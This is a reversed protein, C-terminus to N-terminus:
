RLRIFLPDPNLERKLAKIEKATLAADYVRWDDLRFGDDSAGYYGKGSGNGHVAGFQGARTMGQPVCATTSVENGDVVLTTGSASAVVAVFHWKGALEQINSVSVIDAGAGGGTWSVLALTSADKVVLAMGDGGAQGLNWITRVTGDIAIPRILAVVSMEGAHIASVDASLSNWWPTNGNKILAATGNKGNVNTAPWNGGLGSIEYTSDSAKAGAASAEGNFDYHLFPALAKVKATVTNDSITTTYRSGANVTITESTLETGSPATFLTLTDGVSLGSPDVNSTDLAPVFNAPLNWATATTGSASPKLTLSGIATPATSFDVSAAGKLVVNVGTLNCATSTLQLTAGDLVLTGTSSSANVNVMPVTGTGRMTLTHANLALTAQKHSSRVLGWGTSVDVMADATLSISYTQRTGSGLVVGSNKVAGSYTGGALLVGKGAITLAHQINQTNALDLCAGDEVVINAINDSAWGAFGFQKTTSTTGTKVTLGGNFQNNAAMVVNGYTEVAGEGSISASETVGDLKLVTGSALSIGTTATIKFSTDRKLSAGNELTVNEATISGAGAFTVEGAGTITLTALTYTGAVTIATDGSISVTANEGDAPTADSSWNAVTDFATDNAATWVNGTYFSLTGAESDYVLRPSAIEAGTEDKFVVNAPRASVHVIPVDTASSKQVVLTGEDDVTFSAAPRATGLNFVVGAGVAITGTSSTTFTGSPTVTVDGTADQAKAFSASGNLTFATTVALDGSLTASVGDSFVLKATSGSGTFVSKVYLPNSTTLTGGLYNLTQVAVQHSSSNQSFSAGDRITLVTNGSASNLNNWQNVSMAGGQLDITGTGPTNMNTCTFAGDGVKTLTYGNLYCYYGAQTQGVKLENAGGITANASLYLGGLIAGGAGSSSTLAWPWNGAGAGAIYVATSGSISFGNMDFTAGDKVYLKPTAGLVSASGQKLVGSKVTVSVNAVLSGTGTVLTLVAGDEGQVTLEKLSVAEDMTLTTSASLNITAYGSLPATVSETGIKWEGASWYTSTGDLSLTHVQMESPFDYNTMEAETLIGDFIAIGTIKMGTAASLLTANEKAREGGITCGNIADDGGAKLGSQNFLESRSSVGVSYLSTGGTKSYCFALVGSSASLTQAPHAWDDTNWIGNITGGSAAYVGTRNEDGGSCFSTALTKQADFALDSYKFMVTMADSFGTTFDVKVGVDQDITITSNDQSIANGSRNLTYGTQVASFDGDWVAVPTAAMAALSLSCVIASITRKSTLITSASMLKRRM